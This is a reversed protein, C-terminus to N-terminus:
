RDIQRDLIQRKRSIQRDIIMMQKNQLSFLLQKLIVTSPFTLTIEQVSNCNKFKIKLFKSKICIYKSGNKFFFIDWAQYKQKPIIFSSSNMQGELYYRLLWLFRRNINGRRARRKMFSELLTFTCKLKILGYFKTCYM